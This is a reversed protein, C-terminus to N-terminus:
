RVTLWSFCPCLWMGLAERWEASRSRASRLCLRRGAGWGAPLPRWPARSGGRGSGRTGGAPERGAAKWSNKKGHRERRRGMWALPPASDEGKRLGGATPDHLLWPRQPAAPPRWRRGEGASPRHPRGPIGPLLAAPRTPATDGPGDRPAANARTVRPQKGM